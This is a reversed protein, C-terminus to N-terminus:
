HNTPTRTEKGHNNTLLKKLIYLEIKRIIKFRSVNLKRMIMIVTGLTKNEDHHTVLNWTKDSLFLPNGNVIIIDGVKCLPVEGRNKITVTVPKDEM